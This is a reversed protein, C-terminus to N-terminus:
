VVERKVIKALFKKIIGFSVMTAKAVGDPEPAIETIRTEPLSAM